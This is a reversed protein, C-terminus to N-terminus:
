QQVYRGRVVRHVTYYAELTWEYHCGYLDYVNRIVDTEAVGTTTGTNRNNGINGTVNAGNKQMWRLMADYQSGWVMSSEVSNTNYTKGYAYLGYWMNNSDNVLPIVNAVSGARNTTTSKSMEYRSIYFGGYKEISKIMTNYDEQMTNKLTTIDAYDATNSTLIGKIINLYTENGDYTSVTDPERFGSNETYTTNPTNVNFNEGTSTAYLKGVIKTNNSHTKCVIQDNELQLNCNGGATSCQAMENIDGVPIWVFENGTSNHNEDIADTIVLGNEISNITDSTGVAFGEPIWATQGNKTYQQTSNYIDSFKEVYKGNTIEVTYTTKGGNSQEVVFKYEGNEEVEYTTTTYEVSTGDPKTIKTIEGETAEANITITIKEGENVQTDPSITHSVKPGPIMQDVKGSTSIFYRRGTDTITVIFGQEGNNEGKELSYKNEGFNNELEPDLYQELIEKGNNDILAAQASLEVMEREEALGTNEKADNARTLIGNEGTLTAISVGALILLVIITIVLAILTIGKMSKTQKFSIKSTKDLNKQTKLM